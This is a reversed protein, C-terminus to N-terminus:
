IRYLIAGLTIFDLYKGSIQIIVYINFYLVGSLTDGFIVKFMYKLSKIAYVLRAAAFFAAGSKSKRYRLFNDFTMASCNLYFAFKAAKRSNGYVQGDAAFFLFVLGWIIADYPPKM